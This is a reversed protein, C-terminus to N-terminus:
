PEHNSPEVLSRAADHVAALLDTVHFPKWLSAFSWDPAKKDSRGSMTIVRVSPNLRRLEAALGQPQGDPLGLDLLLLEAPFARFLDQAEAVGKAIAVEYGAEALLDQLVEAATFDDEVVLVRM